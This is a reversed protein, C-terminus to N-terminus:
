NAPVKFRVTSVRQRREFPIDQPVILTARQKAQLCHGGAQRTVRRGTDAKKLLADAHPPWAGQRRESRASDSFSETTINCHLNDHRGDREWSQNVSLNCRFPLEDVHVELLLRDGSPLLDREDDGHNEWPSGVTELWKGSSLIARRRLDVHSHVYRTLCELLLTQDKIRLSSSLM